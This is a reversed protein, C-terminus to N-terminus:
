KRKEVRDESQIPKHADILVKLKRHPKVCTMEKYRHRARANVELTFTHSEKAGEKGNNNRKRKEGQNKQRGQLKSGGKILKKM